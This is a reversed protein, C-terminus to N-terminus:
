ATGISRTAHSRPQIVEADRTIPKPRHAPQQIRNKRRVRDATPSTETLLLSSSPPRARHSSHSVPWSHLSASELDLGTPRVLCVQRYWTNVRTPSHTKTNLARVKVSTDRLQHYDSLIPSRAIALLLCLSVSLCGAAGLGFLSFRGSYCEQMMSSRISLSTVHLLVDVVALNNSQYNLLVFLGCVVETM